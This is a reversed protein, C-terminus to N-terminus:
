YCIHQKSLNFVHQKMMLEGVFVQTCTASTETQALNIGNQVGVSIPYMGCDDDCEFM